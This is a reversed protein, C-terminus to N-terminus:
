LPAGDVTLVALEHIPLHHPRFFVVNKETVSICILPKHANTNESTDVCRASRAPVAVGDGSWHATFTFRSVDNGLGNHKGVTQQEKRSLSNREGGKRVVFLFDTSYFFFRPFPLVIPGTKARKKVLDRRNKKAFCFNISKKGKPKFSKEM